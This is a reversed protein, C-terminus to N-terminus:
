RAAKSGVNREIIELIFALLLGLLLSALVGVAILQLLNRPVPANPQRAPTVVELYGVSSGQTVKLTAENEKDVLYDYSGQADKVINLLSAYQDQLGLLYIIEQEREDLIRDYDAIAAQHGAALALQEQAKAEQEDALTLLANIRQQDKAVDAPIITPVTGTIVATNSIPLAASLESRLTSAKDRNEDAQQQYFGALKKARANETRLRDREATLTRKIDQAAAIEDPLTSVEHELQFKQLDERAQALDQAQVKVQEDLFGLTVQAPNVRIQRFMDIANQTQVTVVDKALEPSPMQASVTIFDSKHQTDIRKILEEASLNLNLDAITKWAVSPLRIVDYFDDHVSQLQQETTLTPTRSFLTVQLPDGPIIQLREYAVYEPQSTANIIFIAATTILPLLIFLWWRKSIIQLYSSFTREPTDNM